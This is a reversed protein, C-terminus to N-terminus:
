KVIILTQLTKGVKDTTTLTASGPKLAKLYCSIGNDETSIAANSQVIDPPTMRCTDLIAELTTDSDVILELEEGVLLTLGAQSAVLRSPNINNSLITTAFAIESQQTKFLNSLDMGSENYIAYFNYTGGMKPPMDFSLLHYRAETNELESSLINRRFPQPTLSFSQLWSETMYHFLNNPDEVAVWLDVLPVRLSNLREVLEVNFWEGVNYAAKLGIFELEPPSPPALTFTATVTQEKNMLIQCVPTTNSCAGNWGAFVSDATATATLIVKMNEFYQGSCTIGCELDDITISGAGTGASNVTLLYTNSEVVIEPEEVTDSEGVTGPEEVATLEDFTAIVNQVQNMTIQCTETGTCAGSWGSFISDAKPTAILTIETNEDYKGTCDVGCQIGPATVTGKGIGVKNITLTYEMCVPYSENGTCLPYSNVAYEFGSYDANEDQCLNNGSLGLNKLNKLQSLDPIPGTFQNNILDIQELHTLTSLDPIQGCLQNDYFSVKELQTLSSLDPLPGSFLNNRLNLVKLNTLTTLDPLLGELRNEFLNLQELGSLGTLNPLTGQLVNEGLNLEVVNGNNNTVVFVFDRPENSTNWGENIKWHPGDTSHYIALLTECQEVSMLSVRQCNEGNSDCKEANCDTQASVVSIINMILIISLWSFYTLKLM